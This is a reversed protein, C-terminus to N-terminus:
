RAPFEPPEGGATNEAAAKAREFTDAPGWSTDGCRAFWSGPSVEILWAAARPTSEWRHRIGDTLKFTRNDTKIWQLAM